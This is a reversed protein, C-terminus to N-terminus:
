REEGEQRGSYKEAQEADKDVQIKAQCDDGGEGCLNRGSKELWARKIAAPLPSYDELTPEWGVRPKLGVTGLIPKAQWMSDEQVQPSVRLGVKELAVKTMQGVDAYGQLLPLLM